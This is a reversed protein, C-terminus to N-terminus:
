KSLTPRYTATIASLNLIVTNLPIPMLFFTGKWTINHNPHLQPQCQLDNHHFNPLLDNSFLITDTYLNDFYSCQSSSNYHCISFLYPCGQRWLNPLTSTQLTVETVLPLYHCWYGTYPLSLDDALSLSVPSVDSIVNKSLDGICEQDRPRTSRTATYFITTSTATSYPLRGNTIQILLTPRPVQDKTTAYKPRPVQNKTTTCKPQLRTTYSIMLIKIM